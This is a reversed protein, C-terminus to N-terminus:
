QCDYCMISDISASVSRHCSTKSSSLFSCDTPSLTLLLSRFCLDKNNLRGFSRGNSRMISGAYIALPCNDGAMLPARDQGAVVFVVSHLWHPDSLRSYAGASRKVQRAHQKPPEERQTEASYQYALYLRVDASLKAASDGM